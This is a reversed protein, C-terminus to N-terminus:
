PLKAAVPGDLLEIATKGCQFATSKPSVVRGIVLALVVRSEAVVGNFFQTLWWNKDVELNKSGQSDISSKQQKCHIITKADKVSPWPQCLIQIHRNKVKIYTETKPKVFHLKRQATYIYGNTLAGCQCSFM